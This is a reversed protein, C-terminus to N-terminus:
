MIRAVVFYLFAIAAALGIYLLFRSKIWEYPPRGAGAALQGRRTALVSTRLHEPVDEEPLAAISDKVSHIDEVFDTCAQCTRVHDAIAAEGIEGLAIATLAEHSPHSLESTSM